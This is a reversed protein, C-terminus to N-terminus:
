NEAGAMHRNFIKKKGYKFNLLNVTALTALCLYYFFRAISMPNIVTEHLIRM